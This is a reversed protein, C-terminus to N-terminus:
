GGGVFRVLELRDGEALGRGDYQAPAVIEDNHEVVVAAPDLALLTLLTRVTADHDLTQEKGNCIIRM